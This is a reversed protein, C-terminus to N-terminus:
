VNVRNANHLRLQEDFTTNATFVNVTADPNGGFVSVFDQFTLTNNPSTGGLNAVASPGTLKAVVSGEFTTGAGAVSGNELNLKANTGAMSFNASSQFTSDNVAITQSDGSGTSIAAKGDITSNGITVTDTGKGERISLAQSNGSNSSQDGSWWSDGGAGGWWHDGCGSGDGSNWADSSTTSGHVTVSNLTVNDNGAGTRIILSSAASSHSSGCGAGWGGWSWDGWGWCGRGGGNWDWNDWEDHHHSEVTTTNGNVTVTTLSVTDNGDGTKISLTQFTDGTMQITDGGNGATVAASGSVTSNNFTMSDGAGNGLVTTLNGNITLTALTVADIGDGTKISLAQVTDGTMQVTDNGSGGEVFMKGTIASNGTANNFTLANTGNGLNATVNGNITGLNTADFTVTDNGGQMTINLGNITGIQSLPIDLTTVNTTNGFTFTTNGTGTLELNPIAANGLNVVAANVTHDGADGSLSIVGGVTTVTVVSLLARTELCEAAWNGPPRRRIQRPRRSRLQELRQQWRKLWGTMLM